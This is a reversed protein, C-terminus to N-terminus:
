MHRPWFSAASRRAGSRAEASSASAPSRRDVFRDAALGLAMIEDDVAARRAGATARCMDSVPPQARCPRLGANRRRAIGLVCLRCQLFQAVAIAIGPRVVGLDDDRQAAVPEHQLRKVAEQSAALRDVAHIEPVTPKRIFSNAPRLDARVGPPRRLRRVADAACAPWWRGARRDLGQREVLDRQQALGALRGLDAIMTSPLTRIASSTQSPTRTAVGAPLM